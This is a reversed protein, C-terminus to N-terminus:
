PSAWASTSNLRLENCSTVMLYLTRLGRAQAWSKIADVLARGIGHRRYAPAVWMSIIQAKGPEQQDLLAGVIGCSTEEDMALFGVGMEGTMNTARQRWEVDSLQVERAYTSGFATPSDQLAQLRAAKFAWINRKDIPILTAM